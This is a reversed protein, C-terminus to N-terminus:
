STWTMGEKSDGRAEMLVEITVLAADYDDESHILKTSIVM